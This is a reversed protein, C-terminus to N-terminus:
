LANKDLKEPKDAASGSRVWDDVENQKFMWRRGVRGTAGTRVRGVALQPEGVVAPIQHPVIYRRILEVPQRGGARLSQAPGRMEAEGIEVSAGYLGGPKPFCTRFDIKLERFVLKLGMYGGQTHAKIRGIMKGLTIAASDEHGLM